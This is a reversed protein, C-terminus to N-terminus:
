LPKFREHRIVAPAEQAVLNDSSIESVRVGKWKATTKSTVPLDLRSDFTEGNYIDAARIPGDFSSKWGADSNIIQKSGDAKVIELQYLLGAEKGYWNRKKNWELFGRYWGDGIAV